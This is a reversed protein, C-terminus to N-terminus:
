PSALPLWVTFTAGQGPQSEVEIRGSHKQVIDYCIALGLGTGTEKTTFFPDFLNPLDQPDIGPGTDRFAVGVQRGDAATVLSVTLTGGEVQMADSANLSLNLFVQKLQDPIGSVILPYPPEAYEWRVRNKTLHPTVLSHVQDLVQSLGVAQMQDSAVPRYVARLQTVLNSLREVESTAMNLFRYGEVSPAMSPQILFLCNKITQLPNNFEHAVSAVMRGMASLKGAQILQARTKQEQRLARELHAYLQANKIATAASHAVVELMELDHQDFAGGAKNVAVIVGEVAGKFMLPVGLLSNAVIGVAEGIRKDFRPDGPADNILVPQGSQAVSGTIGTTIPFQMGIAAQGGPRFAALLLEDEGDPAPVRLFAASAEAELLSQAEALVLGLVTDLNLTSVIAQGAKNLATLEIAHRELDQNLKRVAAEAREREVLEQDVAAFLRANEIAIAAPSAIGELLELDHENFTHGAKNTAEIVGRPVGRVMLPVALLSRTTLGTAADVRAYFRPDSRAEGVLVTKGSQMVWGAIGATAPMRMGVLTDSRPGAAAVFVLEDGEQLLVSAGEADMLDRVEKMVVGLVADLDLTSTMAQGARNLAALEQNLEKVEKEARKRETIDVFAAVAGRSGGQEDFLPVMNGFLHIVKGDDFVIDEEIDRIEVGTAASIQLPLKDPPPEIGDIYIKFHTPRQSAPATLSTNSQSPVRLLDYLAHNGTIVQCMPDHAISVAAPVTDMITQLETARERERRESERLAEEARKRESIDKISGQFGVVNGDNDKIVTSTVLTDVVTSNKRKGKVELNEVFGRESIEKVVRDRDTPDFYLEQINIKKLEDVSYGSMTSAVKNVEIIEGDMNTIYLFDRSTEFLRRFKEESMRLAEEAQKRETIDIYVTHDAPKGRFDIQKTYSEVWRTQGCKQVIRYIALPPVMEGRARRTARDVIGPLDDPYILTQIPHEMDLLEQVAYGAMVEAAPNAFVIRGEQVIVLAQLSSEVLVRYAEEARKRETIDRSVGFVELRGTAVNRAYYTTVETWVTSGDKRPQEVEDSYSGSYGAELRALREPALALVKQASTPTLAAMMDQALVEEPTYGRLRAVSPSIYRFRATEVDLIWLVDGINEALLRYQEESKQLAEEARKRELLVQREELAHLVAPGLRKINDKLVYNSAGAKMCSVATDENISGTWIIVPTLPTHELALKLATMGDFRPMTYDTVILNPQFTELAQVYDQPTDVQRFECPGLSRRIEREALGADVESDEVILIRTTDAM